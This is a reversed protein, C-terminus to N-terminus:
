TQNVLVARYRVHKRRLRELALNVSTLPYLEIMPIIAHKASFHFMERMRAVTGTSRGHRLIHINQSRVAGKAYDPCRRSFNPHRGSTVKGPVEAAVSM